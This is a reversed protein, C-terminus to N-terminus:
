VPLPPMDGDGVRWIWVAIESKVTIMDKLSAEFSEGAAAPVIYLAAPGDRRHLLVNAIPQDDKLNYRLGKVSKERMRALADVLRKEQVSEYPIWNENVVMLAAEEVLALGAPNLGFTAIAILHSDDDVAHLSLEREFRAQLRRYLGDAVIFPFGPMHKIILKQGSRASEFGKAEGILVMLRRPGTKPPLAHQLAVARRQEIADKNGSRFVEPVFLTESLPGGKVIMQGAAELLHSRVTWWHRKDRWRSTWETLQAEHWLYHLLARLSMKRPDGSVSGATAGSPVPAARSGTRSLSFELKLSVLGSEPDIQIASGMLSGLGSLEYPVEYSECSPDHAGGSLPMRKILYLDGIHAIYMPCGPERCLCLPRKKRAYAGALVVHLEEAGDEYIEGGIRFRRM